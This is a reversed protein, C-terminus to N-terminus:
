LDYCYKLEAHFPLHLLRNNVMTVKNAHFPKEFMFFFQRSKIKDMPQPKSIFDSSFPNRKILNNQNFIVVHILFFINPCICICNIIFV